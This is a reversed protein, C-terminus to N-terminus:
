AQETKRNTRPPGDNTASSDSTGATHNREPEAAPEAEVRHNREPEVPAGPQLPRATRSPDTRTLQPAREEPNQLDRGDSQCRM